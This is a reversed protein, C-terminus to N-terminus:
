PAEARFPDILQVYRTGLESAVRSSTKQAALSGAAVGLALLVTLYAVAFKPRPLAQEIWQRVSWPSAVRAERREIRHWVQEQFRPPLPTSVQWQKLAENLVQENEPNKNM